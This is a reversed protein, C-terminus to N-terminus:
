RRMATILGSRLDVVAGVISSGNNKKRYRLTVREPDEVGQWKDLLSLGVAGLQDTTRRIRRKM